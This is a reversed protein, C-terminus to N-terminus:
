AYYDVGPALENVFGPADRWRSRWHDDGAAVHGRRVWKAVGTMFRGADGPGDPYPIEDALRMVFGEDRKPDLGAAIRGVLGDDYPGDHLVPVPVIDLMEFTELTRDWDLLVNREDWVGFGLFYSPLPNGNAVTYPIAHTGYMYEGSIRWEPPIHPAKIAHYAKIWARSPHPPGDPSRPYTRESTLTTGEGDEKMTVIVRAGPKFVRMDPIRRDDNQLGPSADLHWTRPYKLPAAVM